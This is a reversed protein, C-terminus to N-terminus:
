NHIDMMRIANYVKVIYLMYLINEDYLIFIYIYRCRFPTAWLLIYPFFGLKPFCGSM